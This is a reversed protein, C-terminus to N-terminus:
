NVGWASLAGPKEELLQIEAGHGAEGAAPGRCLCRSCPASPQAPCAAGASQFAPVSSKQLWTIEWAPCINTSPLNNLLLTQLHSDRRIIGRAGHRLGGAGSCGRSQPASGRLPVAHPCSLARLLMGPAKGQAPVWCPVPGLKGAAGMGGWLVPTCTRVTGPGQEAGRLGQGPPASSGWTHAGGPADRRTRSGAGLEGGRAAEGHPGQHGGPSRPPVLLPTGGGAGLWSGGDMPGRVWSRAPQPFGAGIM